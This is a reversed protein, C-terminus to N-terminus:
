APLWRETAARECAAARIACATLLGQAARAAFKHNGGLHPRDGLYLKPLTNTVVRLLQHVAARPAASANRPDGLEPRAFLANESGSVRGMPLERLGAANLLRRVRKTSETFAGQKAM